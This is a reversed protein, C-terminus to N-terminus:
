FIESFFSLFAESDFSDRKLEYVKLKYDIIVRSSPFYLGEMRKTAEEPNVGPCFICFCRIGASFSIEDAKTVSQITEHIERMIEQSKIVGMARFYATLDQLQFLVLSGHGHSELKTKSLNGFKQVYPRYSFIRNHRSLLEPLLFQYTLQSFEIWKSRSALKGEPCFVICYAFDEQYPLRLLILVYSVGKTDTWTGIKLPRDERAMEKWKDSKGKMKEFFSPAIERDRFQLLLSDNLYFLAMPAQIDRASKKWRGIQYDSYAVKSTWDESYWVM